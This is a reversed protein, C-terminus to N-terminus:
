AVREPERVLVELVAACDPEVVRLDPFCTIYVGCANGLRARAMALGQRIGTADCGVTTFVMASPQQCHVALFGILWRPNGALASIPVDPNVGVQTLQCVADDRSVGGRAMLWEAATQRHFFERLASRTMPLEVAAVPGEIRVHGDAKACFAHLLPDMEATNPVILKVVEGRGLEFAPVFLRGLEFGSCELIPMTRSTNQMEFAWSTCCDPGCAARRFGAIRRRRGNGGPVVNSCVILYFREGSEWYIELAAVVRHHGESIHYTGKKDRWGCIGSEPAEFRFEGALMDRKIRSVLEPKSLLTQGIGSRIRPLRGRRGM